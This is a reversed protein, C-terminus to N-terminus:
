TTVARLRIRMTGEANRDIGDTPNQIVVTHTTYEGKGRYRAGDLFTVADQNEVATLINDRLTSSLLKRSTPRSGPLEDKVDLVLDWVEVQQLPAAEITVARVIPVQYNTASVRDAILNLEVKVKYFKYNNGSDHLALFHRGKVGTSPTTASTITGVTVPNSGDMYLKVVISQGAKLGSTTAADETAYTVHVGELIKADYPLGMDHEGSFSDALLEPALTVVTNQRNDIEDDSWAFIQLNGAGSTYVDNVLAYRKNGWTIVDTIHHGNLSGDDTDFTVDDTNNRVSGNTSNLDDLLSVAALDADYVFLRGTHYGAVLLQNGYSPAIAEMPMTDVAERRFWTVFEAQLTDMDIAYMAGKGVASTTLDAQGWHGTLYLKGNLYAIKRVTFGLPATWLPAFGNEDSYTYVQSVAGPASIFMALQRDCNVMGAFYDVGLELAQLATKEWLVPSVFVGATLGGTLPFASSDSIDVRTLETGSWAYLYGGLFAIDAWAGSCNQDEIVKTSAGGTTVRDIIRIYGGAAVNPDWSAYYLHFMDGIAATKYYDPDTRFDADAKDTWTTGDTTYALANYGQLVWLAGDGAAFRAPKDEASSTAITARARAPRGTIQGRKRVNSYDGYYFKTPQDPYYIKNGEGGSWDDIAWLIKDGKLTRKGDMGAIDQPQAFPSEYSHNYHGEVQEALRYEVSGIKVHAGSGLM